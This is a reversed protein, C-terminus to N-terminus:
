NAQIGYKAIKERLTKRAIGLIKAAHTKNYNVSALVQEIHKKEITDLSVNDRQVIKQKIPLQSLAPLYEPSIMRNNEMILAREIINQLERINGPFHYQYLREMAESTLGKIDKQYFQNFKEIFYEALVPIDDKRERLPPILIQVVNLRYFLDERFAGKEIEESLKRNTAAIIRVDTELTQTGGVRQFEGSQIVRLLKAQTNLSMDGIEDLFLTSTNAFEFRGKKTSFASTFAGKEHGFLESEVLNDPLAACNMTVLPKQARQSKKHIERAVLEKGTGSEGTILVTVDKGAVQDIMQRIQFIEASNGLMENSLDKRKIKPRSCTATNQQSSKGISKLSQDAPQNDGNKLLMNEIAITIFGVTVQLMEIDEDSYEMGNVKPGLSLVGFLKKQMFIPIQIEFWKYDSESPNVLLLFEDGAEETLALIEAGQYIWKQIDKTCIIKPVISAAHMSGQVAIINAIKRSHDYRLFAAKQCDLMPVLQSAINDLQKDINIISPFDDIINLLYKLPSKMQPMGNKM